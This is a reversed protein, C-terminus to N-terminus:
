HDDGREDCLVLNILLLNLLGLTLQVLVMVTLHVETLEGHHHGNQGAAQEALLPALPLALLLSVVSLLSLSLFIYM